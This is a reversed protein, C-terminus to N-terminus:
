PVIRSQEVSRERQIARRPRSCLTTILASLSIAVNVNSRRCTEVAKVSPVVLGKWTLGSELDFALVSSPVFRASNAPIETVPSGAEPMRRHFLRSLLIRM